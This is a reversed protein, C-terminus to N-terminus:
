AYAVRLRRGTKRADRADISRRYPTESRAIERGDLYTKTIITQERNYSYSEDLTGSELAASTTVIKFVSGPEYTDNIAKNRWQRFTFGNSYHNFQKVDEGIYM